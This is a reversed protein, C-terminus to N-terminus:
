YSSCIHNGSGNSSEPELLGNFLGGDVRLYTGTVFSSESSVLFLFANAVESAM